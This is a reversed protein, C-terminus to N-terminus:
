HHINNKKIFVFFYSHWKRACHQTCGSPSLVKSKSVLIFKDLLEFGTELAKNYVYDSIWYQKNNYNIDMTKMVLIGGGVLLRYALQLMSDNASYLQEVSRFSTFRRSIISTITSKEDKILFPLDIVVSNFLDGGDMVLLDDLSKVDESLPHKDFKFKPPDLNKYFCGKSYTLDCDFPNGNNYLLVIGRLIESVSSSVTKVLNKANSMDFGSIKNEKLKFNKEDFNLYKIVTNYSLGTKKQINRISINKNEKKIKKVLLYRRFMEDRRRDINNDKIYKLISAVSVQNFSANDAISIQPNYVIEKKM